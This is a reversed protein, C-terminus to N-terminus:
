ELWTQSLPHSSGAPHKIGPKASRREEWDVPTRKGLMTPVGAAVLSPRTRMACLRRREEWQFWRQPRDRIRIKGLPRNQPRPSSVKCPFGLWPCASASSPVPKKGRQMQDDHAQIVRVSGTPWSWQARQRAQGRPYVWSARRTPWGGSGPRVPPWFHKGQSVPTGRHPHNRDPLTHALLFTAPSDLGRLLTRV